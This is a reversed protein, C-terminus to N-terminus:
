RTALLAVILPVIVGTVVALLMLVQMRIELRRYQRAENERSARQTDVLMQTIGELKHLRDRMRHQEDALDQVDARVGNLREALVDNGVPGREPV